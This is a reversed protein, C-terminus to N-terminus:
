DDDELNEFENYDGDVTAFDENDDDELDDDFEDQDPM